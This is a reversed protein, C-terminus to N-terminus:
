RLFKYVGGKTAKHGKSLCRVIEVYNKGSQRYYLIRQKVYESLVM